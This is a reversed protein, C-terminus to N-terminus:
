ERLAPLCQVERSMRGDQAAVACWIPLLERRRDISKSSSTTPTALWGQVITKKSGASEFHKHFEQAPRTGPLFAFHGETPM